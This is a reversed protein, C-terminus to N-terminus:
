RLVIVEKSRPPGAFSVAAQSGLAVLALALRKLLTSKLCMLVPHKSGCASEIEPGALFLSAGATMRFRVEEMDNM